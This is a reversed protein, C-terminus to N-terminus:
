EEHHVGQTRQRKRAPKFLINSGFWFEKRGIVINIDFLPINDRGSRNARWLPIRFAKTHGPYYSSGFVGAFLNLKAIKITPIYKSM